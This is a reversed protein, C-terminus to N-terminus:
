SQTHERHYRSRSPYPSSLIKQAEQPRFFNVEESSLFFPQGNGPRLGRVVTEPTAVRKFHLYSLLCNACIPFVALFNGLVKVM